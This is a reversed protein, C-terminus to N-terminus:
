IKALLAFKEGIKQTKPTKKPNKATKKNKKPAKKNKRLSKQKKKKQPTGFKKSAIVKAIIQMEFVGRGGRYDIRVVGLQQSGLIVITMILGQYCMIVM